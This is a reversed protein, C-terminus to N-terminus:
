TDTDKDVESLSRQLEEQREESMDRMLDVNADRSDPDTM